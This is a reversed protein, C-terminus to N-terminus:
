KVLYRSINGRAYEKKWAAHNFLNEVWASIQEPKNGHFTNGSFHFQERIVRRPSVAQTKVDLPRYHTRLPIGFEASSIM